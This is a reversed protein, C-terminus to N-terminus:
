EIVAATEMTLAHSHLRSERELLAPHSYYFASYLPHPTLNGLNKEYLKRLAAILSRSEKMLGAAYADAEYEHRRSFYHFVPSLWFMVPGALLGCLLLAPAVAGPAFGFARNFWPARILISIGYFALLWGAASAALSKPIHRKKYHGIEHALVAELEALAMQQVLTDFLVIKRAAGFGTFFANSHRSRKSGDMVQIDRAPFAARRALALLSDRLAGEPLPSFKNFLPLILSPAALLLALQFVILCGWAWLWWAPGLAQELKLIAALLPWGLLLALFAGKLRDSWWLRPTTTNFGFREELHFQAHWQFPLETLALVFGTAFLFAAGAWAGTGFAHAFAGYFWLLVGSFLVLGLVITECALELVRFRSKSLTYNVSRAYTEPPLLDRLPAPPADAHALVCRQNLKELWNQAM